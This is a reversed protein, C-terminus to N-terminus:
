FKPNFFKTELIIFLKILNNHQGIIIEFGVHKTM